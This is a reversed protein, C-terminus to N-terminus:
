LPYELGGGWPLVAQDGVLLTGVRRTFGARFHQCRVIADWRPSTTARAWRGDRWSDGLFASNRFYHVLGQPCCCSPVPDLWQKWPGGKILQPQPMGPTLSSRSLADASTFHSRSSHAGARDVWPWLAWHRRAGLHPREFLSYPSATTAVVPPSCVCLCSTFAAWALAAYAVQVAGQFRRPLGCRTCKFVWAAMSPCRPRTRGLGSGSLCSWGLHCM